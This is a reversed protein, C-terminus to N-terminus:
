AKIKENTPDYLPRLSVRAPYLGDAIDVAAGFANVGKATLAAVAEDVGTQGRACVAVDCGEAALTEAIARGIGRSAGTVIAKKGKLQLDM